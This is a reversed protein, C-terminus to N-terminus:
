LAGAARGPTFLLVFGIYINYFPILLKLCEGGDRGLDRFRMAAFMLRVPILLLSLVVAVTEMNSHFNRYEPALGGYVSTPEPQAVAAYGLILFYAGASLGLNAFFYQLRGLTPGTIRAFSTDTTTDVGDRQLAHSFQLDSIERHDSAAKWEEGHEDRM